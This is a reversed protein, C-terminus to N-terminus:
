SPEPLVFPGRDEQLEHNPPPFLVETLIWLLLQTMVDASLARISSVHCGIRPSRVHKSLDPSTELLSQWKLPPRFSTYVKISPPLMGLLPFLMLPTRSTPLLKIRPLFQFTALLATPYQTPSLFSPASWAPDAHSHPPTQYKIVGVKQLQQFFWILEIM